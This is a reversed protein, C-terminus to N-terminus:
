SIFIMVRIFLSRCITRCLFLFGGRKIKLQNAYDQAVEEVKRSLVTVGPEVAYVPNGFIFIGALGFVKSVLASKEKL